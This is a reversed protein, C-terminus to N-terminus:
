KEDFCFISFRFIRLTFDFIIERIKPLSLSVYFKIERLNDILIQFVSLKVYFNWWNYDNRACWDIMLWDDMEIGSSDSTSINFLRQYAFDQSDDAPSAADSPIPSVQPLLPASSSESLMPSPPPSPLPRSPTLRSSPSPMSSGSSAPRLPPRTTEATSTAAMLEVGAYEKWNTNAASVGHARVGTCLTPEIMM